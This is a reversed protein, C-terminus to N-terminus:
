LSHFNGTSAVSDSRPRAVLGISWKRQLINLRPPKPSALPSPVRDPYEEDGARDEDAAANTSVADNYPSAYRSESPVDTFCSVPHPGTHAAVLVASRNSASSLYLCDGTGQGLWGTELQVHAFM